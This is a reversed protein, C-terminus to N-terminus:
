RFALLVREELDQWVTTVGRFGADGLAQEHFTTGVVAPQGRTALATRDRLAFAGALAPEGRLADWFQKWDEAGARLAAAERRQTVLHVADTVAALHAPLPLLDANMIVGGTPLLGAVRRYLAVLDDAAVYHLAASSVIADVHEEGVAPVWDDDLVDADVWRLRGGHDGQWARGPEVLVPDADLAM